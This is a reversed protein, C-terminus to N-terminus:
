CFGFFYEKINTSVLSEVKLKKKGGPEVILYIHIYIIYICININITWEEDEWKDKNVM